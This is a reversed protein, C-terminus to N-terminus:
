YQIEFYSEEEMKHKSFNRSKLIIVGIQPKEYGRKGSFTVSLHKREELLKRQFKIM